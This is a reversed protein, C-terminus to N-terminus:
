YMGGDSEFLAGTTSIHYNRAPASGAQGTGQTTEGKDGSGCKGTLGLWASNYYGTAGLYVGIIGIGIAVIAGTKSM